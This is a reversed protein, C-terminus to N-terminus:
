RAALRGGRTGQGSFHCRESLASRIRHPSGVTDNGSEQQRADDEDADGHEWFVLQQAPAPPHREPGTNGYHRDAVHDAASKVLRSGEPLSRGLLLQRFHREYLGEACM